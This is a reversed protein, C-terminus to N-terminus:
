GPANAGTSQDNGGGTGASEQGASPGGVPADGAAPGPSKPGPLAPAGPLIASPAPTQPKPPPAASKPAASPTAASSHSPAPPVVAGRSPMQTVTPAQTTHAPSPQQTAAPSSPTNTPTRSPSKASSSLLLVGGLLAAGVLVALAILAVPPRRKPQPPGDDPAPPPVPVPVARPTRPGLLETATTAQVMAATSAPDALALAHQAFAETSPREEPSKALAAYVLEAIPAPVTPPLPPPPEMQHALAVTVPNSDQFPRRGSLCEYGVIGLSYIDSAATVGRGAAQEPALYFSTGLVTGTTTLPVEDTARAIGFDTVKVRDDPTILLNGPKIDRHVVGREHAASLAMATQGLISMTESPKLPGREHLIVSLPQGPVLEMVLYGTNGYAGEVPVEGYDYVAAIGPHALRATNRAEARFREVFTPDEAYEAKLLKVAVERGLTEDSARWVEGMGGLAIRSELRYRGGLVMAAGIL